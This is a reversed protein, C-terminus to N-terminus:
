RAKSSISYARNSQGSATYVLESLVMRANTGMNFATGDNFSVGLQSNDRTEVVDGQYVTDGIQLESCRATPM